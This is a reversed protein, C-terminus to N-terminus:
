DSSDSSGSDSGRGGDPGGSGDAGGGSSGDGSSSTTTTLDGGSPGPGSSSSDQHAPEAQTDGEGSSTASLQHGASGGGREESGGDRTQSHRETSAVPRARVVAHDVPAVAVRVPRRVVHRVPAAVDAIAAPAPRIAHRRHPAVAVVSAAVLATGATAAAIKTVVGLTALKAAAAPTEPSSGFLPAVWDRLSAPVSALGALATRLSVRLRQRARFLLSEVAPRTVGLEDALEDYSLGSFERLVLAHRQQGPLCALARRLSAVEEARVALDAPNVGGVPEFEGEPLPERMRRHARTRCENRAITALWAAPERPVTGDALSAYASLFTQQAADEADHANRLMGRCIALV